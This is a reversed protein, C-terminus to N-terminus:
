KESYAKTFFVLFHWNSFREFASFHLCWLTVFNNWNRTQSATGFKSVHPWIRVSDASDWYLWYIVFVKFIFNFCITMLLYHFIVFSYLRFFFTFSKMLKIHHWTRSQIVSVYESGHLISFKVFFALPRWGNVIKAFREMKSTKSPESYAEIHNEPTM